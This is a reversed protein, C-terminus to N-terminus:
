FVAPSKRKILQFIYNNQSKTYINTTAVNKLRFNFKKATPKAM